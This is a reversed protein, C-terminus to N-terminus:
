ILLFSISILLHFFIINKLRKLGIQHETSRNKLKQIKVKEERGGEKGRERRGERRERGRERGGKM